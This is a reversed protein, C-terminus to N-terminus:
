LTVGRLLLDLRAVSDRLQPQAPYLTEVERWAKLAAATYGLEELITAVGTLAGFHRPELALCRELANMAQGMDRREYHATARTNWGEAFDPAHDTLATLHGIAVEPESDTIAARGRQLLLDMAPSGSQSLARAINGAIAPAAEADATALAAYLADMDADQATAAAPAAVLLLSTVASKLITAYQTMM